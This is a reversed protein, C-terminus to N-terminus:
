IAANKIHGTGSHHGYNSSTQRSTNTTTSLVHVLPWYQDSGLFMM